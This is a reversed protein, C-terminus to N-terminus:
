KMRFARRPPAGRQQWPTSVSIDNEGLALHCAVALALAKRRRAYSAPFSTDEEEEQGVLGEKETTCRSLEREWLVNGYSRPHLCSEEAFAIM